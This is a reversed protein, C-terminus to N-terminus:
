SAASAANYINFSMCYQNGSLIIELHIERLYGSLSLYFRFKDTRDPFFSHAVRLKECPRFAAAAHSKCQGVGPKDATLVTGSVIGATGAFRANFIFLHDMRIKM